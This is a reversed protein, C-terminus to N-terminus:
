NEENYIEKAYEVTLTLEYLDNGAFQAKALRGAEARLIGADLKKGTLWHQLAAVWRSSERGRPCLRRLLFTQRLQLKTKGTVDERRTIEEVGMPFLGCGSSEPGTSDIQLAEAGWDPYSMLLNKLKETYDM